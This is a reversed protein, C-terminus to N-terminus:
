AVFHIHMSPAWKGWCGASKPRPVHSPTWAIGRPGPESRRIAVRPPPICPVQRGTAREANQETVDASVDVPAQVRTGRAARDLPSPTERQAAITSSDDVRSLPRTGSSEGVTQVLPLRGARFDALLGILTDLISLLAVRFQEMLVRMLWGEDGSAAVSQRMDDLARELSDAPHLLTQHSV